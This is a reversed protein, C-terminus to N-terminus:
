PVEGRNFAELGIADRVNRLYYRRVHIYYGDYQADILDTLIQVARDAESKADLFLDRHHVQIDARAQCWNSLRQYEARRDQCWSRPPFRILCAIHPANHLEEIREMICVTDVYDTEREDIIEYQILLLLLLAKM